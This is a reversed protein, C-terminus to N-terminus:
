MEGEKEISKVYVHSKTRKENEQVKLELYEVILFISILDHQEQNSDFPNARLAGDKAIDCFIFCSFCCLNM